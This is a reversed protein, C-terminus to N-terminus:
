INQQKRKKNILIFSNSTIVGTHIYVPIVGALEGNGQSADYYLTVQDDPTPLAPETWVVQGNVVGTFLVCLLPFMQKITMM